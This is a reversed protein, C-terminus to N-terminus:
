IGRLANDLIRGALREVDMGTVVVLRNLKEGAMESIRVPIETSSKEAANTWRTQAAKKGALSRRMKKGMRSVFPAAMDKKQRFRVYHAACFGKARHSRECKKGDPYKYTCVSHQTKPLDKRTTPVCSSRQSAVVM